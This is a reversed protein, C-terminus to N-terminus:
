RAALVATATRQRGDRQFHIMIRDGPSLSKLLRSYDRLDAIGTDNIGVIVDGQRLGAQAAPTGTTVESLRVGPGDHGFDPVTGLLARRSAGDEARPSRDPLRRSHLPEPRSALYEAAEKVVAAVRLLDNAAIKDATDSPRHYDANAGSFFQVAPIGRDLFSSQDSSGYDDAVAKVPVGTVYAAGRFIHPWERASGTGLVLLPNDGLRGVTDLNLMAMIRDAPFAPHQLYYQSGLKGAEEGTFAVFVVNREPRGAEVLVRALELMVAVGSANDDAGPHVRGENGRRVDPWGRGLHDYHAGVVVSESRHKENAAPIVGVVNSLEVAAPKGAVTATWTQNYGHDDGAPKLGLERFRRAIYDAARKLEPSGLGRGAMAPAALWNVDSLMRPGSFVAPPEALPRRAALRATPRGGAPTLALSLPSRSVPWQGKAVNDPGAGTFALYSYKGYHPLKRGLGAVAAVADTAVWALGDDPSAPHRAVVVVSHQAREFSEGGIEVRGARDSFRDDALADSLASRFRNTWGFLWVARDGPLRDLENDFKVDIRATRGESWSAALERYARKLQPDAASPLVMLARGAGFMQSLAPPIEHRDLRRFVDFEPDIDLRLPRVPLTLSFAQRRGRLRVSTQYARETRELHVAVPVTVTYVDADQVQEIVASLVFGAGDAAPQLDANMVRLSPAGARQTWQEFFSGLPEGLVNAFVDRVDDFTTVRFRHRRYLERLASVFREDGLKRRLMHFLMMTKGYGVAETASSHRARFGTLPFDENDRVYDVYKQLTRRRYPVGQGRQEKVLHDALYSTLGEAWNGRQYDVYVGNGWWNHLIEHPYSSHLIFPLRIVRPGLLTFSPMGYGTEWFNEVLAFKAYPYPGILDGYMEIYLRAAGLYKAALSPDAERLLVMADVAGAAQQYETFRGGILYIEEQPKDTSWTEVTRPHQSWRWHRAGQSMSQWRAPLSVTMSFTAAYGAPQAIWHSAGSLYVGTEAIVGPSVGFSRAYDPSLQRVPHHIEGGYELTFQRVSPALALTVREVPVGRDGVREVATVAAGADRVRPNLGAHLLMSLPGGTGVPLTVRDIVSLRHSAPQVSVVLQHHIVAAHSAAACSFALLILPGGAVILKFKLPM